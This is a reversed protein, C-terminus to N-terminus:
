VPQNTASPAPQTPEDLEVVTVEAIFRGGEGLHFVDGPRLQPWISPTMPTLEGSAEEGPALRFSDPSFLLTAGYGAPRGDHTRGKFYCDPRYESFIPTKRGGDETKFLRVNVRM